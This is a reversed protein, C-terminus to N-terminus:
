QNTREYQGFLLQAASKEPASDTSAKVLSDESLKRGINLFTKIVDPNNGLGNNLMKVLEPTAFTRIAQQALAVSEAFKAGGFEPNSKSQQEWSKVNDKWQNVLGEEYQTKYGEFQQAMLDVGNQLAEQSMNFKKGYEALKGFTEEPLEMGEPMKFAEYKEPSQQPVEKAAAAKEADTMPKPSGEEKTGLITPNELTADLLSPAPTAATVAAAATTSAPSAAPTAAAPAPVASAAAASTSAVTDSM